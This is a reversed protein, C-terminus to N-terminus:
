GEGGGKGVRGGGKQGRQGLDKGWKEGEGGAKGVKGGDRGDVGEMRAGEGGGKGVRGGDM